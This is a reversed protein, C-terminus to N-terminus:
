GHRDVDRYALVRLLACFGDLLGRLPERSTCLRDFLTAAPDDPSVCSQALVVVKEDRLKGVVLRAPGDQDLGCRQSHGARLRHLGDWDLLKDLDYGPDSNLTEPPATVTTLQRCRSTAPSVAGLRSPAAGIAWWTDSSRPRAPHRPREGTGRARRCKSPEAIAV